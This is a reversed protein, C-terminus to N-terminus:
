NGITNIQVSTNLQSSTIIFTARKSAEKLKIAGIYSLGSRLSGLIEEIIYSVSGKCPILTTRGESSKYNERGGYFKEMATNSSMGFFEKHMTGNYEIMDGDCEDTGALMTGLMVFDAGGCFAKFIDSPYVCGGDATVLGKLGHASDATEIVTSLMPRGIGTQRRTLCNAGGSIGCKVIDAGALILEETMDGSAVNGAMIITDKNNIRFERLFNVFIELHASAADICVMNPKETRKCFENYKQLDKSSIGLTYFTNNQAIIQNNNWFEVLSELNHHKHLTTLMGYSALKLAMKFSGTLMNAAIIPVGVWTKGSHPFIFERELSVEKRSTLTSRKPLVLVDSYELQPENIIRM